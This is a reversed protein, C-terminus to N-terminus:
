QFIPKYWAMPINDELWQLAIPKISIFLVGYIVEPYEDSPRDFTISYDEVLDNLEPIALIMVEKAQTPFMGSDILMQELKEQVTM